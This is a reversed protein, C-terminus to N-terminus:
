VQLFGELGKHEGGRLRCRHPGATSGSELPPVVPLRHFRKEQFEIPVKARLGGGLSVLRPDFRGTIKIAVGLSRRSTADMAMTPRPGTPRQEPTAKAVWPWRTTATSM